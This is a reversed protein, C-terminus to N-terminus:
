GGLNLTRKPITGFLLFFHSVLRIGRYVIGFGGQGLEGKIRYLRKFKSFGRGALLQKIQLLQQSALKKVKRALVPFPM